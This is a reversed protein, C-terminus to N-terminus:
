PDIVVYPVPEHRSEDYPPLDSPAPAGLAALQARAAELGWHYAYPPGDCWALRYARTAAEVAATRNGADPEIQALVNLADAQFLPHPGREVPEWVDDLFARAAALDGQQRRLEALSVLAPVEGEVFNGSRAQTLAGHLLREADVVIGSALAVMGQMLIARMQNREVHTQEALGLAEDALAAAQKLEAHPPESEDADAGDIPRL